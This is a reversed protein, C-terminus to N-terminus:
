DIVASSTRWGPPAQIPPEDDPLLPDDDQWELAADFEEFLHLLFRM